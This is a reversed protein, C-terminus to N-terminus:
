QLDPLGDRLLASRGLRRDGCQGRFKGDGPVLSPRDGGSDRCVLLHPLRRGPDHRDCQLQGTSVAARGTRRRTWSMESLRGGLAFLILMGIGYNRAMVSFEYIFFHSALILAILPRPFPSRWVILFAATAAVAFAVFGLAEPRGTIGHVSRLLFYWLAPHGDGHLGRLMAIWDEGQIAFSLARAEDRWIVHRWALAGAAALWLGFLLIRIWNTSNSKWVWAIM